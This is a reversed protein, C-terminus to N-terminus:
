KKLKYIYYGALLMDAACVLLIIYSWVPKLNVVCLAMAGYFLSALMMITVTAVPSVGYEKLIILMHDPSGKLPNKGQIMRVIFVFATDWLPVALILIPAFVALPSKMTYEAGMAVASLVFGLLMSGGDGMFSKFTKSVNFPWFALAGGLLAAAAFNVYIHESPLAVIIFFLAAVCAQSVAFSDAIDLLNFANTVGIVWLMTLAYSIFTNQIFNIKIGYHILAYAAAAQALLKIGTGLGKPKKIDDILGCIYIIAGGAFIGRLSHLTGTPFDTIFRMIILSFFFGAAIATGGVLPVSGSHTKIGAPVDVFRTGLFRLLVACVFSSILFAALFCLVYNLLNQM